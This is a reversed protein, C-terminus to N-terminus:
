GQADVRFEWRRNWRNEMKRSKSGEQMLFEDSSSEQCVAEETRHLVYASATSEETGGTEEMSHGEVWAGLRDRGQKGHRSADYRIAHWAMGHWAMGHWAMGHWAMGHWAM